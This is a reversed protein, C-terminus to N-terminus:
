READRLNEQWKALFQLAELPTIRDIDLNLLEELVIDNPSFLQPQRDKEVPKYIREVEIKSSIEKLIDKARNLVDDPLGALKAVHIGYSNSSSGAKVRKLFVIQDKKELVDMTLKLISEHKLDSLEHYHTAFLTKAKIEKLIYESVSWAISLGDSTGTGRGIEDLLLLSRDSASRLINSTENMEVLFTSEGRALNDTAGVRCFIKDVFGIRAEQAPVFSGIQAMLVILAVQRLFTSKGAMNPGTLLVFYRGKSQLQLSNPIFAGQPLNAEVVPHRGDVIRLNRDNSITPKTYGHITAAFAFSELVDIESVFHAFEMILPIHNATTDRIQLFLQRELEVIREDANNIESEIEALKETTFRECGLLSQRRMFYDPVLSTNSKTVEFFYGIIRNYRLKLSAIGTRDREGDLLDQLVERANNKIRHLRDLEENYGEKIINGENLQVSPDEKISGDLLQELRFLETLGTELGGTYHKMQPFDDLLQYISRIASLSSKVSLLDKAHAKGVAIKASLRELDLISALCDRLNSLLIQDRYFFDVCDLRQKIQQKSILPALIWRKLKRTGMSTRCQDLVELLTYRKSGDQMNHILELNKQTSEDLGVFTDERYLQLDKLHSLLNKSANKVYELIAGASILEPSDNQLGFGKLNEVGLQDKLERQSTEMDFYWDPYRNLILDEREHLLRNMEDDDELLSEQIVIERPSLRFLEKKLKTIRDEYDFSTTYFEATSLDIYSLSLKDRSRGIALLYNNANRELLNEDVVTGPSIVEIVERTALGTGGKPVYTQECIAIKKGAKLLRALYSESAHYPIGCMPVNNRKTLTIDLLSSVEKADQEFMEYFDGMRFFLVADKHQQKIRRYQLMMPTSTSM